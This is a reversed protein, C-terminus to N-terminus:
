HGRGAHLAARAAIKWGDIAWRLEDQVKGAIRYANAKDPPVLSADLGSQSRGDRRLAALLRALSQQNEPSM